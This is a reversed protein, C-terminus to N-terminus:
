GERRRPHTVADVAPEAITQRLLGVLEDMTRHVSGSAEPVGEQTGAQGLQELRLAADFAPAYGFNGASGKLSHAARQLAQLDGAAVAADVDGLLVPLHEIFTEAVAQLLSRDGLFRELLAEAVPPQDDVSQGDPGQRRDTAPESAPAAAGLADVTAYLDAARLPKALYEDMGAALCLERDGNMARATLAVIPLHGGSVCERERIIRTAEFGGMVPMQVDMLVLDFREREAHDVAAQGNEAVTVLHGRRKLLAIALQRNVPNDEALLIRLPRSAANEPAAQALRIEALAEPRTGLAQAVAAYLEEQRVPKTVHNAIGLARCRESDGPSGASTLMMVVAGALRPDDRISAALAFGDMEPMNADLLILPFRHGADAAETLRTLASLGGEVTEPRMRWRGLMEELIMRNTANDDVVLVPLNELLEPGTDWSRATLHSSLGLTITFHFTSGQGEESELWIRGGMMKVLKASITLGLGTGGYRRTTSGDAQAFADFIRQHMVAPVGIGSDRVRFHLVVEDAARSDEAVDLVVEGHETFKIANGVLNVIVQRLRGADGVLIDPTGPAIRLALELGKDHARLALPSMTSGLAESLSFDAPDLDLMGAEVKSFDLIDNIVTLLSEASDRAIGLYERESSGPPTDLALDIMGMVGNMPTRIEHSMNALFESKAQSAAEAVEKARELQEGAATLDATRERVRQELHENAGALETQTHQLSDLMTNFARALDGVEDTARVQARSGLDGAAIREAIVAMRSLPATIHTSIGFVAALGFLLVALSALATTRRAQAVEADVEALSLGIRLTGIRRDDSVIPVQVRYSRTERDLGLRATADVIHVTPRVTRDVVYELNGRADMVLIFLLDPNREAGALADGMAKPDDFLLGPGVSFASISGIARAKSELMRLAQREIQAPFFSYIFSAIAVLLLSVLLMLRTRIRMRWTWAMPRM